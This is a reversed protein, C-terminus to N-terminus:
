LLRGCGRCIRENSDLPAACYPCYKSGKSTAGPPASGPPPPFIPKGATGNRQQAKLMLFKLLYYLVAFPVFFQVAFFWSIAAFKTAGHEKADFAVTIAILSIIIQAVLLILFQNQTLNLPIGPINNM